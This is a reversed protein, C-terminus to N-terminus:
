LILLSYMKFEENAPIKVFKMLGVFFARYVDIFAIFLFFAFAHTTTSWHSENAICSPREWKQFAVDISAITWLCRAFRYREYQVLIRNYLWLSVLLGQKEQACIIGLYFSVCRYHVDRLVGFLSVYLLSCRQAFCLIISLSALQQQPCM